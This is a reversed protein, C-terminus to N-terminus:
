PMKGSLKLWVFGSIVVITIIIGCLQIARNIKIESRIEALKQLSDEHFREASRQLNNEIQNLNTLLENKNTEASNQINDLAQRIESLSQIFETLKSVEVRFSDTHTKLESLVNLNLEKIKDVMSNTSSTLEEFTSKYSAVANTLETSSDIVKFVQQKASDIQDLSKQLEALSKLIENTNM